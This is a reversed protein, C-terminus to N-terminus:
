VLFGAKSNRNGGMSSSSSSLSTDEDLTSGKGFGRSMRRGVKTTALIGTGPNVKTANKASNYMWLGWFTLCVGTWQTIGLTQHFYIISAVIVVIRKVLSAISYTVPSTLALVSFALFNQFFHSVGNLFLLWLIVSWTGTSGSSHKLPDESFILTWGETYLWMPIMCVAALTSSYFLINIKDLKPGAGLAQDIPDNSSGNIPEKNGLGHMSMEEQHQQQQQQKSKGSSLIKKTFVNQMVFVLTSALACGLGVVNNFELSMRCALMVGAMLPVLSLYVPRSYTTGLVVRYFLVTFLPTLAKVTHVVSLPVRSIAVSSFVHGVVQFGVLPATMELIARTPRRIRTMKFGAGAIFCFISVFWFQVFTLTVPYRFQNMIQKGINNTVASSMYWSLCILPLKLAQVISGTSFRFRSRPAFASTTSRGETIIPLRSTPLSMKSHPSHPSNNVADKASQVVKILGMNIAPPLFGSVGSIASRANKKQLEREDDELLQEQQMQLQTDYQDHQHHAQHTTRGGITTSNFTGTSISSTGSGVGAAPTAVVSAGGVGSSSTYLSSAITTSGVGAGLPSAASLSSPNPRYFAPNLKSSQGPSTTPYPPQQALSSRHLPSHQSPQNPSAINSQGSHSSSLSLSPSSPKASALQLSPSNARNNYFQGQQQSQRTTVSTHTQSLSLDPSLNEPSSSAGSSISTRPTPLQQVHLPLPASAHETNPNLQNHSDVLTELLADSTAPRYLSSSSPSASSSSVPKQQFHTHQQSLPMTTATAATAM